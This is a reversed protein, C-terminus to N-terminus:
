GKRHLVELGDIQYLLMGATDNKGKREYVQKLLFVQKQGTISREPMEFWLRPKALKPIPSLDLPVSTRFM